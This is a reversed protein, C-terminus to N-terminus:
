NAVVQAAALGFPKRFIKLVRVGIGLEYLFPSIRQYGADLQM